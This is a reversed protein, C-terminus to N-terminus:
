CHVLSYFSIGLHLDSVDQPLPDFIKLLELFNAAALFKRATSRRRILFLAFSSMNLLSGPYIEKATKMTPMLLSASHLTKSLPLASAEKHLPKTPLL